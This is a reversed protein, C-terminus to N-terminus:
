HKQFRPKKSSSFQYNINPCSATERQHGQSQATWFQFKEPNIRYPFLGKCDIFDQSLQSCFISLHKPCSNLVILSFLSIKQSRSRNGITIFEEFSGIRQEFLSSSENQHLLLNGFFSLKEKLKTFLIIQM